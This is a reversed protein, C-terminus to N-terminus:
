FMMGEGINMLRHVYTCLALLSAEHASSGINTLLTYRWMVKSGEEHEAKKLGKPFLSGSTSRGSPEDLFANRIWKLARYSLWLLVLPVGLSSSNYVANTGYRCNAKPQSNRKYNIFIDNNNIMGKM